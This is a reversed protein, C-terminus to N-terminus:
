PISFTFRWSQDSQTIKSSSGMVEYWTTGPKMAYPRGDDFTLSVVSDATPRHWTLKYIQGERMAYAVGTGSFDMQLIEPTRLYYSHPMMLVVVNDAAIAQNNLRDTLQKYVENQGNTPDNQTESFRLYRGQAADYDWRNYIASSYRAFLHTAPTGNAPIQYQFTMGDLNQRGNPIGKSTVATSLVKTNAVLYNLGKPDYRCMAPCAVTWEFILRNAYDSNFLKRLVRFDASGFAFVGKYMRILNDDFLRGSRISGVQEADQGLFIAAYRTSGEETYYEYVIDALSLGWQPRVTRPLNSVKIILPRRELRSPDTVKLGTLPDVEPPFNSPGYGEPPYDPTATPQPTQTPTPTDTVAPTPTYAPTFTATATPTPLLQATPMCASSLLFVIILVLYTRKMM